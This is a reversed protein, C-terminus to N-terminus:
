HYPSWRSRCEKGVRREESRRLVNKPFEWGVIENHNMEPLAHSSALSKSNEEFQGRWRVAVAETSDSTGYVICYKGYLKGALQKSINKESLVNIGIERDRLETLTSHLITVDKETDKIFGLRNLIALIAISMYGLAARPPLGPSIAVHRFGNKKSLGELKGGSGMTIIFAGKKIGEAFSSLTEETNGSYSSCFLLTNEAVFDPLTYNRSVVVPVKLENRLYVSVIHAGIASGGLGAFVINDIGRDPRSLECDKGIDHAKRCQEPFASIFKLMNEKDLKAILSLNDLRDM